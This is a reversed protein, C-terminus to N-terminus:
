GSSTRPNGATPACESPSEMFISLRGLWHIPANSITAHIPKRARPTGRIAAAIGLSVSVTAPWGVLRPPTVSVGSAPQTCDASELAIRMRRLSPACIVASGGCGAAPSAVEISWGTSSTWRLSADVDQCIVSGCANVVAEPAM